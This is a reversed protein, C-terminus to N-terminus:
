SGRSTVATMGSGSKGMPGTLSCRMCRVASAMSWNPTRAGCYAASTRCPVRILGIIGGLQATAQASVPSRRLAPFWASVATAALTGAWSLTQSAEPKQLANAYAYALLLHAIVFGLATVVIFAAFEGLYYLWSVHRIAAINFASANVISFLIAAGALASIYLVLFDRPAETAIRSFQDLIRRAQRQCVPFAVAVIVLYAAATIAAPARLFPIRSAWLAAGIVAAFVLGSWLAFSSVQAAFRATWDLGARIGASKLQATVIEPDAEELCTLGEVEAEVWREQAAAAATFVSVPVAATPSTVDSPRERV